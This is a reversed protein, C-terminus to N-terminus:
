LPKEMLQHSTEYNPLIAAYRPPCMAEIMQCGFNERAAQEVAGLLHRWRRPGAGVLAIFRLARLRPYNQIETVAVCLLAAGEVAVWMQMRGAAIATLIDSALFRGKSGGAMKELHPRVRPAWATIQGPDVLLAQVSPDIGDFM